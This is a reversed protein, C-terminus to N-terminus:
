RHLTELFAVLDSLQRVTMVDSYDDMRSLKGIQVLEPQLGPYIKHSPNVLSNILERRSPARDETGLVVLTAPQVYPGPFSHGSVSHCAYCKLEVFAAKGREPDGAPLAVGGTSSCGLCTILFLAMFAVRALNLCRM